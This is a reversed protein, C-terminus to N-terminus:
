SAAEPPSFAVANKRSSTGFPLVRRRPGDVEKGGLFRRAVPRVLLASRPEPDASSAVQKSLRQGVGSRTHETHPVNGNMIRSPNHSVGLVEFDELLADLGPVPLTMLVGTLTDSGSFDHVDM